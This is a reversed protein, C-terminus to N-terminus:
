EVPQDVPYAGPVTFGHDRLRTTDTTLSEVWASGADTMATVGYRIPAGHVTRNPLALSATAYRDAETPDSFDIASPLDVFPLDHEVAMNTYVFAADLKGAELARVLATEPFVHSDDLLTPAALGAEEALQLALVTRYGLPDAKPDTRGLRVDDRELTRAWDSDLADAYASDPNYALVLANTAFLTVNTALGEFLTPDALALVDPDRAGDVVLNRVTLSGHAEVSAGPVDSALALLSGAVLAKAEDTTSREEGGTVFRVGQVGATGLTAVALGGTAVRRVFTRRTSTM